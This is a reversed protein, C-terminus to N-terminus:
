AIWIGKMFWRTLMVLAVACFVTLTIIPWKRKSIDSWYTFAPFLMLAFRVYSYLYDFRPPETTTVWISVVLYLWWGMQVPSRRIYRLGFIVALLSWILVAFEFAFYYWPWHMLPHFIILVAHYYVKWIPLYSRNWYKEAMLFALYHGTHLKQWYLFVAFGLPIIGLSLIKWDLKQWWSKRWFAYDMKRYALYEGLIVLELLMGTNRTLTALLALLGALWFHKKRAAYCATISFLMFLSESYATAFYFATPFFTLLAMSAIATSQGFQDEVLLGFFYLLFIFSIAPVLVASLEYSHGSILHMFRIALPYMPFFAIQQLKVYGHQAIPIFWLSDAKIYNTVFIKYISYQKGSSLVSAITLLIRQLLFFLLSLVLFKRNKTLANPLNSELKRDNRSQFLM